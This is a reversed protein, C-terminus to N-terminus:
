GVNLTFDATLASGGATVATVHFDWRGAAFVATGFYQGQTLASEGLPRMDVPRTAAGPSGDARVTVVPDRSLPIPADHDDEFAVHLADSGPHGPTLYADLQRGDPLQIGYAMSMRGMTMEELQDPSPVCTLNLPIAVDRGSVEVDATVTWRGISSLQDDGVASYSGDTSAALTISAADTTRGAPSFVLKAATLTANPLAHGSATDYLRLTFRNPGVYDPSVDLAARLGDTAGDVLVHPPPTPKPTAQALAPPLSSSLTAAAVLALSAVGLEISGVRRLKRLSSLSRTVAPVVRFRNYAGLGALLAVLGVKLVVLQGFLTDLLAHWAAVEDLARLVGSLCLVALSYGAVGSFRRVAAAKDPAADAGLTLLLAALGGIWTAFSAVHLWQLMLEAAAHSGSAAHTTLVHGAATAAALMLAAVLAARRRRGGDAFLLAAATCAAAGLGPVLQVLLGLGLSTSVLEGPGIGDAAAQAWGIVALGATLTGAGSLALILPRRTGRPFGFAAIWCGGVLLGLGADFVWIGAVVPASATNPVSVLEPAPGSMAAYALPGVGFTFTGNTVHGDDSSVSKWRVTYVGGLLPPLAVGLSLDGPLPRAAGKSVVRGASDVVQLISLRPVIKESFTITVTKPMQTLSSGAAPNSSVLLAHAQATSAATFWSAGMALLLTALVAALRARAEAEARGTARGATATRRSM